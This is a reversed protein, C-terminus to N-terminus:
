RAAPSARRGRHQVPSRPRCRTPARPDPAGPRSPARPRAATTSTAASSHGSPPATFRPHPAARRTRGRAAPHRRRDRGVGVGHQEVDQHEGHEARDPHRQQPPRRHPHRQQQRREARGDLQTCASGDTPRSGLRSSTAQLASPATIPTTAAETTRRRLCPPSPGACSWAPMWSGPSSRRSTPPSWRPRSLRRRRRGAPHGRRPHRGGRARALDRGRRRGARLAPRRAAAGRLRHRGARGVRHAGRRAAGPRDDGRWGGSSRVCVQGSAVCRVRGRGRHPDPRARAEPGPLLPQGAAVAVRGVGQRAPWPRRPVPREVRRPPRRRARLGGM